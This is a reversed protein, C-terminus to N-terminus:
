ILTRVIKEALNAVEELKEASMNDLDDFPQHALARTGEATLALAPIGRFAFTSHNSEAWPEVWVVGPFAETIPRITKELAGSEDVAAISSAGLLTGVGDFNIACQISQFYAEARRLYEDDGMPLYEEGNFAVLELGIGTELKSLREALELLVAVGGGNDSAGPTNIKTDFHACLVLRKEANPRLRGVVNRAVEHRREADIRLRPRSAPNQILRRAAAPSVTAAPLDLEWDETLQGYYDTATPPALLAAPQGKELAQLIAEDREDKLFWSKPALPARALDGYLLLLKGKVAAQELEPLTGAFALPATVDCPLSFPNAAADLGEGDMELFTQQCDWATCPYPQEEVQWGAASFAAAIFDAGAQNAPSGIPRPGLNTLATLHELLKTM